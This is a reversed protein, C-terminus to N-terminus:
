WVPIMWRVEDGALEGEGPTVADGLGPALPEGEGDVPASPLPEGLGSVVGDGDDPELGVGAAPAVSVGPGLWPITM